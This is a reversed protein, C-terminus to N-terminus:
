NITFKRLRKVLADHALIDTKTKVKDHKKDMKLNAANETNICSKNGNIHGFTYIGLVCVVVISPVVPLRQVQSFALMFLVRLATLIIM